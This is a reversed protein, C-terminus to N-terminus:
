QLRVNGPSFDNSRLYVGCDPVNRFMQIRVRDTSVDHKERAIGISLRPLGNHPSVSDRVAFIGSPM